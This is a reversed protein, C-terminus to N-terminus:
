RKACASRDQDGEQTKDAQELDLYKISGKRSSCFHPKAAIIAQVNADFTQLVSFYIEPAM